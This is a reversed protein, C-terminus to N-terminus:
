SRTTGRASPKSRSRTATQRGAPFGPMPASKEHVRMRPNIVSCCTSPLARRPSTMAHSGGTPSRPLVCSGNEAGRATACLCLPFCGGETLRIATATSSTDFIDAMARVTQFDAKPYARAIPRLIYDPMLLSSAFRDAARERSLAGTGVRGIEEAQCLLVRGRDYHWHGLEHGISFRRRRHSSRSNVTIIAQDTTGIIRAECGSLPRYRVRVALDWAIAELDIEQPETIGLRKLILEVPTAGIM